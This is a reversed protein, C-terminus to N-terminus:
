EWFGTDSRKTAAGNKAPTDESWTGDGTVENRRQVGVGILADVRDRRTGGLTRRGERRRV